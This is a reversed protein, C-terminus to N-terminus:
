FEICLLTSRCGRRITEIRGELKDQDTVGTHALGADNLPDARVGEGGVVLHGDPCLERGNRGVHVLLAEELHHEPVGAPLFSVVGDSPDEVAARVTDDENVLNVLLDTM